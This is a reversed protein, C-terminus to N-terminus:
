LEIETGKLTVVVSDQYYEEGLYRLKGEDAGVNRMANLKEFFRAPLYGSFNNISLDLIRLKHFSEMPEFVRVSGRLKNSRLVLVRLEPLNRLWYPFVDNIKNNGIDLVELKTCNVLSQPNAGELENNNM